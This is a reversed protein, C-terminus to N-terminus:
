TSHIKESAYNGAPLLSKSVLRNIANQVTKRRLEVLDHPLTEGDGENMPQYVADIYDGSRDEEEEEEEEEEPEPPRCGCSYSYADFDLSIASNNGVTTRFDIVQSTGSLYSEYAIM